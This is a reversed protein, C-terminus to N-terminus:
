ISEKYNEQLLQTIRYQGQFIDPWTNRREELEMQLKCMREHRNMLEQASKEDIDYPGSELYLLGHKSYHTIDEKFKQQISLM